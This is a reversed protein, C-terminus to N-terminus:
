HSGKASLDAVQKKLSRLSGTLRKGRYRCTWGFLRKDAWIREHTRRWGNRGTVEILARNGPRSTESTQSSSM